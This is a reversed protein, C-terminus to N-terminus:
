SYAPLAAAAAYETRIQDIIDKAPRAQTITGVGHGASWVDRWAKIQDQSEAFDPGDAKQAAGDAKVKELSAKLYYADAGTLKNSLVLDEFTAEVVMDRYLDTALSESAPIFPTGMYTFDAGLVEAARVARGDCLSGALVVIGDFFDRVAAIFAFGAMAGTHGGAGASVLVLGDAGAAVAKRALPVSNVDAFVLGGYDHVADIVPRPGGLATIVVDPKYRSILAIEDALRDYSSHTVLNAAFPALVQGASDKQECCAQLWRELTELDRANPFPFSGMVGERRVANVLDPGSVLFMPAAILPLSMRAQLPELSTGRASHAKGMLTPETM